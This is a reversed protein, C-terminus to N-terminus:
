YSESNENSSYGLLKTDNLYIYDNIETILSTFYSENEYCNAYNNVMFEFLFNEHFM